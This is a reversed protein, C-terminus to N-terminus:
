ANHFFSLPAAYFFDLTLYSAVLGIMVWLHVNLQTKRKDDDQISIFRVKEIAYNIVFLALLTHFIWDIM